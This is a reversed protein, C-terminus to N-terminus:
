PHVHFDDDQSNIISTREKQYNNEVLRRAHDLASQAQNLAVQVPHTRTNLAKLKRHKPSSPDLPNM